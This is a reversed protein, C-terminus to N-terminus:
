AAPPAVADLVADALPPWAELAWPGFERDTPLGLAVTADPDIRLFPGSAVSAGCSRAFERGTWRSRPMRSSSGLGWNLPQFRGIGPLMGGLGPFQVTTARALTAPAILSPALLEAAFRDLRQRTQLQHAPSGPLTSSTMALPKLVAEDLYTAFPMAATTELHSAALEIGTNSYIRRRGPAVIPRDGDFGYGGAHALLHRM